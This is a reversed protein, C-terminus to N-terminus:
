ATVNNEYLIQNAVAAINAGNFGGGEFVNNNNCVIRQTGLPTGDNDLISIAVGGGNMDFFSNGNMTIPSIICDNDVIVNVSSTSINSTCVSNNSINLNSMTTTSDASSFDVNIAAGDYALGSSNGQVRFFQNESINFNKYNINPTMNYLNSIDIGKGNNIFTNQSYTPSDYGEDVSAAIGYLTDNFYNNIMKSSSGGDIVSVYYANFRNGKVKTNLSVSTDGIIRIPAVDSYCIFFWTVTGDIVSGALGTPAAADSTGAVYCLYIRNAAQVIDGVNYATLATWTSLTDLNFAPAPTYPAPGSGGLFVNNEITTDNCDQVLIAESTTTTFRNGSVSANRTTNLSVGSSVIINNTIVHGNGETLSIAYATTPLSSARLTLGTITISYNGSSVFGGLGGDYFIVSGKEGKITIPSDITIVDDITYTGAPIVVTGGGNGLAAVADVANQITERDNAGILAPDLISRWNYEVNNLVPNIPDTLDFYAYPLPLTQTISLVGANSNSSSRVRVEVSPSTPSSNRVLWEIYVVIGTPIVISSMTLGTNTTLTVNGATRNEVRTTVLTNDGYSTAIKGGWKNQIKILANYATPLQFSLGSAGGSFVLCEGVIDSTLTAAGTVSTITLIELPTSEEVSQKQTNDRDVVYRKQFSPDIVSASGLGQFATAM